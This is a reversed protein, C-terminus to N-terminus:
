PLRLDTEPNMRSNQNMRFGARGMAAAAPLVYTAPVPYTGIMPKIGFKQAHREANRLVKRLIDNQGHVFLRSGVIINDKRIPGGEQFTLCDGIGAPSLVHRTGVGNLRVEMPSPTVGPLTVYIERYCGRDRLTTLGPIDAATTVCALRPGSLGNDDSLWHYCLDVAMEASCLVQLADDEALYLDLVRAM